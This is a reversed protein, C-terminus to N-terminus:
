ENWYIGSARRERTWGLRLLTPVVKRAHIGAANLTPHVLGGQWETEAALIEAIKADTPEPKGHIGLETEVHHLASQLAARLAQLEALNM